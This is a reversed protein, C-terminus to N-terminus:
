SRGHQKTPPGGHQELLRAAVRPTPVVRVRYSLGCRGDYLEFTPDAAEIESQHALILLDDDSHGVLAGEDAWAAVGWGAAELWGVIEERTLLLAELIRKKRRKM